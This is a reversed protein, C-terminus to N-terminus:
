APAGDHEFVATVKAAGERIAGHVAVLRAGEVGSVGPTWSRLSADRGAQISPYEEERGLYGDEWLKRVMPGLVGEPGPDDGAVDYELVLVVRERESM